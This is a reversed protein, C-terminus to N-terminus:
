SDEIKRGDGHVERKKKFRKFVKGRHFAVAIIAKRKTRLIEEYQKIMNAADQPKQLLNIEDIEIANNITM